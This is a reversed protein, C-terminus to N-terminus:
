EAAVRLREGARDLDRIAAPEGQGLQGVLIGVFGHDGAQCRLLRQLLQGLVTCGLAIRLTHGVLHGLGERVFQPQDLIEFVRRVESRHIGDDAEGAALVNEALPAARGGVGGDAIDEADGGDIGVAVIQQELAEDRLLAALRGIDIDIKLVLPALDDHLPHEVGVAAIVGRQARGHDAVAGLARQAVDALRKAQGLVQRLHQRRASRRVRRIM